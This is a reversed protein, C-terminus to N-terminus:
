TAETILLDIGNIEPQNIVLHIDVNGKLSYM